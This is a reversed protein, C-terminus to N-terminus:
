SRIHIRKHRSANGRCIVVANKPINFYESLAHIVAENARGERAPEKVSVLFSGDELKKVFSQKAGPKIKVDITM